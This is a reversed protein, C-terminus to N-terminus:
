EQRSKILASGIVVILAGLLVVGVVGIMSLKDSVDTAITTVSVFGPQTPDSESSGAAPAVSVTATDDVPALDLLGLSSLEPLPKDPIVSGTVRAPWNVAFLLDAGPNEEKVQCSCAGTMFAANAEIQTPSIGKGALAFYSRGRGFVPIVIPDTIEHLGPESGLLVQAHANEIPDKPNLRLISFELRLDVTTTEMFYEDNRLDEETPLVLENELRDLEAQLRAEAADDATTDGSEILVWVASQGDLIRDAIEQRAPSDIVSSVTDANLAGRYALQDTKVSKPFRVMMAPYTDFGGFHDLMLKNLPDMPLNLDATEVRLNLPHDKSAAAERLQQVLAADTEGLPGQHFVVATFDDPEWRELAYRFVPIQCASAATALCAAALAGLVLTQAPKLSHNSNM